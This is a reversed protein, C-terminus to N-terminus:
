WRLVAEVKPSVGEIFVDSWRKLERYKRVAATFSYFPIDFDECMDNFGFVRFPANPDHRKKVCGCEEGSVHLADTKGKESRRKAQWWLSSRVGPQWVTNCAICHVNYDCLTAAEATLM